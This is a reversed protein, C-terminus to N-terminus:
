GALGARARLGPDRITLEQGALDRAQQSCLWAIVQAPQAPDALSERPLRSVENIGSARIKVQMDTDVVGPQFGYVRVGHAGAELHIAQTLMALGAKASCYASWGERPRVAAGSSINVIVGRQQALFHPLVARVCHFAGVLNIQVNRAWDGPDCEPLYGIPEIVGANNILIDIRGFRALTEHVVREVQAYDAVDVGFAVAEGGARRIEAAAAACDPYTRSALVVAAGARALAAAAARGIGKGAGTVMAVQGALVQM